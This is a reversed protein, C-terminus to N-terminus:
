GRRRECLIKHSEGPQLALHTALLVGVQACETVLAVPQVAMDLATDRSCDPGALNAPCVLAVALFSRGEDAHAPTFAWVWGWGAALILAVGATHRFGLVDRM